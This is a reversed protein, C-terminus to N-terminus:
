DYRLPPRGVRRRLDTQIDILTQRVQEVFVDPKQKRAKEQPIARGYQVVISGPLPVPQTRPWAEFAGDIVVPVTWKAARRSLIAVGPLFPGITGDRTRTAEAFIVVQRGAKLRRMAQKIAGIDATGRKVPFANLSEILQKFGPMRFLSDRAMYNMPRRLALSMLLPDLFSQHNSIYVAGGEAPEFHRDFVRIKWLACITAQALRRLSRYWLNPEPVGDAFRLTRLAPNPYSAPAKM